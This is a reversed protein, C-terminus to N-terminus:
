LVVYEGYYADIDRLDAALIAGHYVPNWVAHRLWSPFWLRAASDHRFGELVILLLGTKWRLRSLSFPTHSKVLVLGRPMPKLRKGYWHPKQTMKKAIHYYEWQQTDWTWTNSRNVRKTMADICVQDVRCDSCIYQSIFLELGKWCGLNCSDIEHIEQIV